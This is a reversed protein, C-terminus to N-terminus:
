YGEIEGEDYVDKEEDSLIIGEKIGKDICFRVGFLVDAEWTRDFYSRVSRVDKPSYVFIKKVREGDITLKDCSVVEDICPHKPVEADIPVYLYPRFGKVKIMQRKKGERCLLWIIPRNNEDLRYQADVVRLKRM